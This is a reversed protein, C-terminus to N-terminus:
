IIFISVSIKWVLFTTHERPVTRFAAEASRASASDEEQALLVILM